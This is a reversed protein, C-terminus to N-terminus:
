KGFFVKAEPSKEILEKKAALITKGWADEDAFDPVASPVVKLAVDTGRVLDRARYVASTAGSALRERVVYRAALTRGLLDDTRTALFRPEVLALGHAECYAVDDSLPREFACAPCRM